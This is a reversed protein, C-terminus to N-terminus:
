SCPKPQSSHYLHLNPFLKKVRPIVGVYDLHAHSLIMLTLSSPARLSGKGIMTPRMGTDILLRTNGLKYLYCSAGVENTGGLGLFRM